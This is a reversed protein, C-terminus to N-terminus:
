LGKELQCEMINTETGNCEVLDVAIKQAPIVGGDTQSPRGQWTM